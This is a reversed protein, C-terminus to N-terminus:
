TAQNIARGVAQDLTLKSGEEWAQEFSARDMRNRATTIFPEYDELDAACLTDGFSGQQTEIAGILCTAQELKGAKVALAALGAVANVVSGRDHIEGALSLSKRFLEGAQEDDGLRQSVWGLNGYNVALGATNGLQSFLEVAERYLEIAQDLFARIRALEGKATLCKAMGLTHRQARFLSLAKDLYAEVEQCDQATMRPKILAMGLAFSAWAVTMPESYQRALAWAERAMQEGDAVHGLHFALNSASSLAMSVVTPDVQKSKALLGQSWRWGELLHGRMHWCQGLASILRLGPEPDAALSWSLVARFNDHELELCDLALREKLGQLGQEIQDALGTYYHAHRRRLADLEGSRELQEQAYERITELMTFRAAGQVEYRRVLSKNVLSELADFPNPTLNDGCIVHIAELTWGGAFISLRAFLTRESETLLNYSWDITQRLTQQRAPLDRSGGVLADLLGDLRRLLEPPGLLKSHAAALEIALPLGDLRVCIRGVDLTTEDTLVFDARVARAVQVYLAVAECRAVSTLDGFQLDPTRLPPLAYEQEGYIRLTERSTVLIKVGPAAALLESVQSVAGLLHEFNDLILLIHQDQLTVKLTEELPASTDEHIGLIDAIRVAVFAPNRIPALDVFFVGDPFDGLVEAGVRLSLRTKGTGPSGTITLLRADHLLLKVETLEQERGVFRTTEAPLNHRHPRAKVTHGHLRSNLLGLERGRNIAQTRSTVGLKEYIRHNYWKVTGLTLVRKEAIQRDSLGEDLLNLIDRERQTLADRNQWPTISVM